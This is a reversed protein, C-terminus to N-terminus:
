WFPERKNGDRRRPFEDNLSMLMPVCCDSSELWFRVPRYYRPAEMLVFWNQQAMLSAHAALSKGVRLIAILLLQHWDGLGGAIILLGMMVSTMIRDKEGRCCCSVIGAARGDSSHDHSGVPEARFIFFWSFSLLVSLVLLYCRRDLSTTTTAMGFIILFKFFALQFDKKSFDWSM